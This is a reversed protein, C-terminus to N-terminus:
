FLNFTQASPCKLVRIATGVLDCISYNRIDVDEHIPPDVHSHGGFRPCIQKLYELEELGITDPISDSVLSKIDETAMGEIGNELNNIIVLAAVGYVYRLTDKDAYANDIMERFMDARSKVNTEGKPKPLWRKSLKLTGLIITRNNAKM